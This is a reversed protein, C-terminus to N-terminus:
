TKGENYIVETQETHTAVALGPGTYHFPLSVTALFVGLLRFHLSLM